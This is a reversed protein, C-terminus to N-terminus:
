RADIGQWRRSQARQAQATDKVAKEKRKEARMEYVWDRTVPMASKSFFHTAEGRQGSPAVPEADDAVADAEPEDLEQGQAVRQRRRRRSCNRPRWARCAQQWQQAVEVDDIAVEEVARVIPELARGLM